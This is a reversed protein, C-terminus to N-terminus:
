VINDIQELAADRQRRRLTELKASVKDKILVELEDQGMKHIIKKEEKYFEAWTDAIERFAALAFTSTLGYDVVPLGFGIALTAGFHILFRHFSTLNPFIERLNRCVAKATNDTAFSSIAYTRLYYNLVMSITIQTSLDLTRRVTAHDALFEHVVDYLKAEGCIAKHWIANACSKCCHTVGTHDLCDECGDYGYDIFDDSPDRELSRPLGLPVAIADKPLHDEFEPSKTDGTSDAIRSARPPTISEGTTGHNGPDASFSISNINSITILSLLILKKSM